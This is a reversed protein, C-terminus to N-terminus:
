PFKLLIYYCRVTDKGASLTDVSHSRRRGLIQNSERGSCGSCLSQEAKGSRIKSLGLDGLRVRSSHSTPQLDSKGVTATRAKKHPVRTYLDHKESFKELALVVANRIDM